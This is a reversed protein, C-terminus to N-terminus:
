AAVPSPAQRGQVVLDIAQALLIRLHAEVAFVEASPAERLARLLSGDALEAGFRQIEGDRAARRGVPDKRGLIELEDYCRTLAEDTMRRHILPADGPKPADQEALMLDGYQDQWFLKHVDQPDCMAAELLYSILAVEYGKRWEPDEQHRRHEPVMRDARTLAQRHAEIREDVGIRRLGVHVAETPRRDWLTRWASPGLTFVHPPKSSQAQEVDAAKSM